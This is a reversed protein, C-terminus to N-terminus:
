PYFHFINLMSELIGCKWSKYFGIGFSVTGLITLPVGLAANTDRQFAFYFFGAGAIIFLLCPIIKRM